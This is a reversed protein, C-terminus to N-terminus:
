SSEFHVEELRASYSPFQSCPTPLNLPSRRTSDTIVRSSAPINSAFCRAVCDAFTLLPLLLLSPPFGWLVRDLTPLYDSLFSAPTQAVISRPILYALLFYTTWSQRSIAQSQLLWVIHFKYSPFSCCLNGVLITLLLPSFVYFFHSLIPKVPSPYPSTSFSHETITNYGHARQRACCQLCRM